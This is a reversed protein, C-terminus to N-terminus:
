EYLVSNLLLRPALELIPAREPGYWLGLTPNVADGGIGAHPEPAPDDVGRAPWNAGTAEVVARQLSALAARTVELMRERGPEVSAVIWDIDIRYDEESRSDPVKLRFGGARGSGWITWGSPLWERFQNTLIRILVDLAITGERVGTAPQEDGPL